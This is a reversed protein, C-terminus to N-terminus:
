PLHTEVPRASTRPVLAVVAAALGVAVVVVILLYIQIMAHTNPLGDSLSEALFWFGGAATGLGLLPDSTGRALGRPAM